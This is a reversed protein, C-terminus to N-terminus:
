KILRVSRDHQISYIRTFIQMEMLQRYLPRLRFDDMNWAHASALVAVGCHAAYVAAQVDDQSTLEDLVLLQPSMTKLLMMAAEAKPCGDIVDTHRGIDFQPRGRYLAALEAREDALATRVGSDSLQRALDRLLTTKGRGPPALFLASSLVGDAELQELLKQDAAGRVQRAVRINLSSVSRFSLVRGDKVAAQGCVGVRHGGQITVFGQSLSDAFTHVSYNTARGLTDEMDKQELTRRGVTTERGQVTVTLPQGVRLRIEECLTQQAASMRELEERLPAALCGSAQDLRIELLM